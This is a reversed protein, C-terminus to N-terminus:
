VKENRVYILYHRRPGSPLKNVSLRCRPREPYHIGRAHSKSQFHQPLQPCNPRSNRRQTIPLGNRSLASVVCCFCASFNKCFRSASTPVSLRMPGRISRIGLKSSTRLRARSEQQGMGEIGIVYVYM